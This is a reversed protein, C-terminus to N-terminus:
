DGGQDTQENEWHAEGDAHRGVPRVDQEDRNIVHVVPDRQQIRFRGDLSGVQFSQGCPSREKGAGITHGGRAIGGAGGREGTQARGRGADVAVLAVPSSGQRFPLGQHLPETIGAIEHFARALDKMMVVVACKVVISGKIIKLVHAWLEIGLQFQVPGFLITRAVRIPPRPRRIFLIGDVVARGFVTDPCQLLLPILWEEEGASDEFWVRREEGGGFIM